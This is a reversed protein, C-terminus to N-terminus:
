TLLASQPQMLTPAFRVWGMQALQHAYATVEAGGLQGKEWQGPSEELLISNSCSRILCIYERKLSLPLSGYYNGM